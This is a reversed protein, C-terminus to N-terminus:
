MELESQAVRHDRGQLSARLQVFKKGRGRGVGDWPELVWGFVLM